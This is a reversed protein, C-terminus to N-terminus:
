VRTITTDIWSTTIDSMRSYIFHDDEEDDDIWPYHRLDKKDLKVHATESLM